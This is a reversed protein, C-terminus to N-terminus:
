AKVLKVCVMGQAKYQNAEAIDTVYGTLDDIALYTKGAGLNNKQYDAVNVSTVWDITCKAPDLGRCNSIALEKCKVVQNSCQIDCSNLGEPIPIRMPLEQCTWQEKKGGKIFVVDRKLNCYDEKNNTSCALNCGTVVNPVNVSSGGFINGFFDSWSGTGKMFFFILMVVVLGILVISFVVGLVSPSDQAKKNIKRLEM